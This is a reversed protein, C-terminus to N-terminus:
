FLSKGLDNKYQKFRYACDKSSSNLLNNIFGFLHSSGKKKSM